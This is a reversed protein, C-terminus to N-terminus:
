EGEEKNKEQGAPADIPFEVWFCSGKGEESIVGFPFDHQLLISKVISLGLGTGSVPRKHTKGSRYYRDWITDVEDAPIGKGTDIVEFRAYKGKVYLRIRIRKDDEGTYNVANGILNYLVQAIRDKDATVFLGDAIEEEIALGETERLYSFREAVARVEESLDFAAREEKVLGARLKSLDLLDSVLLTLRDCEDIIVKAHADRKQKNDGSIERIMSAYAKIMTLPTKFDHSVNAILEKQMVDARSIETRAYELAESLEDIEACYYDKRFNIQYNGRAMEKARATVETLPRTIFPTVIGSVVFALVVAALATVLSIWRLGADMSYHMETPAALYLFAPRGEVEVAHAYVTVGDAESLLFNSLAGEDRKERLYAALDSFDAQQVGALTFVSEGDEYFLHVTLGNENALDLLRWGLATLDHSGGIESVMTEGTEELYLRTRERYQMTVLSNQVVVFVVVVMLAFMSFAFWLLFSLGIGASQRQRKRKGGGM